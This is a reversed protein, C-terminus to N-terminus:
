PGAAALAAQRLTTADAPDIGAPVTAVAPVGQGTLKVYFVCAALYTGAVTPHSGDSQYLAISPSGALVARWAEGVPVLVGDNDMAAQTYETLLGDQMASPTGGSWPQAYDANGDARAWTEFFAPTAGADHAADSFLGASQLFGMSDILPTESQEQLVVHTWHGQAIAMRADSSAWLEALTEGGATVSSTQIEPPQGSTHAIATLTDPLDNTYTYSDGIFIVSLPDPGTYSSTTSSESGADM